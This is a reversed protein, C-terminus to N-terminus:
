KVKFDLVHNSQYGVKEKICVSSHSTIPPHLLLERKSHQLKKIQKRSEKKNTRLQYKHNHVKPENTKTPM